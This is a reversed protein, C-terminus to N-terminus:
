SECNAKLLKQNIKSPRRHYQHRPPFTIAVTDATVVDVLHFCNFQPHHSSVTLLSAIGHRIVSLENASCKCWIRHSFRDADVRCINSSVVFSGKRIANDAKVFMDSVCELQVTMMTIGLNQNNFTEEILTEMCIERTGEFNHM